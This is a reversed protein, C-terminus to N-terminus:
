TDNQQADAPVQAICQAISVRFFDHLLPDARRDYSSKGSPQASRGWRLAVVSEQRTASVYIFTFFTQCYRYRATSECPFVRSNKRLELRSACAALCNKKLASLAQWVTVGRTIVTSLFAAYGLARLSNFASPSRGCGHSSRCLLYKFLRISCSRRKLLRSTLGPIPKKENSVAHLVNCPYSTIFMILFPCTCLPFLPFLWHWALNM